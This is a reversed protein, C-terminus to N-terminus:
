IVYFQERSLGLPWHGHEFISVFPLYPNQEWGELDTFLEWACALGATYMVTGIATKAITEGQGAFERFVGDYCRHFLFEPVHETIASLSSLRGAEEAKRRIKEPLSQLHSWLPSHELNIGELASPLQAKSVWNVQYGQIGFQQHLEAIAQEAEVRGNQKEPASFWNIRSLRTILQVVRHGNPGYSTEELLHLSVDM